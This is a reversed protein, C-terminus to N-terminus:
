TAPQSDASAGSAEGAGADVGANGDTHGDVVEEKKNFNEVLTKLSVISEAVEYQEKVLNGLAHEPDKMYSISDAPVAFALKTDTLFCITGLEPDFGM